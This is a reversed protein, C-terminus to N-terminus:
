FCLLASARSRISDFPKMVLIWEISQESTIETISWVKSFQPQFYFSSTTFLLCYPFILKLKLIVDFNGSSPWITKFDKKTLIFHIRCQTAQLIVFKSSKKTLSGFQKYNDFEYLVTVFLIFLLTLWKSKSNFTWGSHIEYGKRTKKQAPNWLFTAEHHLSM